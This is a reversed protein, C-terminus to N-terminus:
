KKEQKPQPKDSKPQPKESSPPPAGLRDIVQQQQAVAQQLAAAQQSLYQLNGQVIQIQQRAAAQGNGLQKLSTQLDQLQQICIALGQQQRGLEQEQAGLLDRQGSLQDRMLMEVSAHRSESLYVIVFLGCLALVALAVTFIFAARSVPSTPLLPVTQVEKEEAPGDESPRAMSKDRRETGVWYEQALKPEGDQWVFFGELDQVPDVVLATAWPQSFSTSQIFRDRDSLFIGFRPHTHYWGVIRMGPYSADKVENVQIWSEPTFTLQTDENRTHEAVIAAQVDLYPGRADRYVDGVLIGGVEQNPPAERAHNWVADYANRSIHVRYPEGGPFQRVELPNLDIQSTDTSSV